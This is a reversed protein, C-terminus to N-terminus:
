AMCDTPPSWGSEFPNMNFDGLLVSRRHGARDEAEAIQRALEFCRARQDDDRSYMKSPLHVACMLLEERAPLRLRRISVRESEWTPVVLQSSFRTLVTIAQCNGEALHYGGSARGLEPNFQKLLTVPDGSEALVVVDSHQEIAIAAAVDAIPKRNM